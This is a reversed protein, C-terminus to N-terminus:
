WRLWAEFLSKAAHLAVQPPHHFNKALGLCAHHKPLYTRPIGLSKSRGIMEVFPNDVQFVKRFELINKRIIHAPARLKQIFVAQELWM